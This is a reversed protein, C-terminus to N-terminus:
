KRSQPLLFGSVRPEDNADGSSSDSGASSRTMADREQRITLNALERHLERLERQMAHHARRRRLDFLASLFVPLSGAWILTAQAVADNSPLTLVYAASASLLISVLTLSVSLTAATLLIPAVLAALIYPDLRIALPVIRQVTTLLAELEPM